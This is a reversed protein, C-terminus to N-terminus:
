AADSKISASFARLKPELAKKVELADAPARAWFEQLAVRNQVSWREATEPDATSLFELCRDAVQGLPVREMVGTSPDFGIILANAGGTRELRAREEEKAVVDAATMEAEVRHLEEEAYLGGFQEPWGARLAQAEACKTIMVVPMRAWNGELTSNGTPRWKGETNESFEPKIAAFEDWYAEGSVPFWEGRKDSKWLRVTAKVIGKPNTPSKADPDIEIQAPESAPRYDGCRAAIARLGDRGVIIALQRKDAKHKNFVLASIQKRFPDLGYARAAEFFLNFERDDCDKAVTQRILSIQSASYGSLTLANAM